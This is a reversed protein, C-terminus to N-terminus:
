RERATSTSEESAEMPEFRSIFREVFALTEEHGDEAGLARETSFARLLGAMMLAMVKPPYVDRDVAYRAFVTDLVGAMVNRDRRASRSIMEHVAPRHSALANFELILKASAMDQGIAWLKRLPRDSAIARALRGDYRDELRQFAAIFLDDMTAFYYHILKSKLGARTAVKRSSVGAYGEEIMIQETADLILTRTDSSAQQDGPKSLM